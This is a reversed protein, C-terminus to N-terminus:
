GIFHVKARYTLPLTFPKIFLKRIREDVEPSTLEIIESAFALDVEFADTGGSNDGSHTGSGDHGISRILSRTPVINYMGSRFMAYDFRIAWSNVKGRMQDDLMISRDCGWLNFGRRLSLSNKFRSYDSVEWDIKDWRDAWTAWAYSSVRQTRIVDYKYDEPLEMPVTYGGISFVTPDDKYHDLAENMYKLFGRASVADDEVVIVRGFRAIISGAGDIVSKALGKNQDSINLTMSKFRDSFSRAIKEVEDRIATSGDKAGDIFVFIESEGALENDSLAGLTKKLHEPRNYAFVVIPAYM